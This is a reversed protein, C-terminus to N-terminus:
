RIGGGYLSRFVRMFEMKLSDAVKRRWIGSETHAKATPEPLTESGKHPILNTGIETMLIEHAIANGVGLGLARRKELSSAQHDEAFFEYRNFGQLRDQLYSWCYDLNQLQRFYAKGQNDGLRKEIEDKNVLRSGEARIRDDFVYVFYPKELISPTTQGPRLVASFLHTDMGVQDRKWESFKESLAFDIVKSLLVKRSNKVVGFLEVQNSTAFSKVALVKSMARRSYVARAPKLFDLYDMHSPLIPGDKFIVNPAWRVIADEAVKAHVVNELSFIAAMHQDPNLGVEEDSTMTPTMDEMYEEAATRIHKPMLFKEPEPSGPKRPYEAMIGAGVSFAINVYVPFGFNVQFEELKTSADTGVIRIPNGEDFHYEPGRCIVPSKPIELGYKILYDTRILRDLTTRDDPGRGVKSLRSIKADIDALYADFAEALELSTLYDNIEDLGIRTIDRLYSYKSAIETVMDMARLPAVEGHFLSGTDEYVFYITGAETRAQIKKDRVLEDLYKRVTKESLDAENSLDSVTFAINAQSRLIGLLKDKPTAYEMNSLYSEM